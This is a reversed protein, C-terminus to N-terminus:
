KRLMAVFADETMGVRVAADKVSLLNDRVLGVMADIYGEHKGETIGEKRGELRGELRGEAKSDNILDEIAKCM